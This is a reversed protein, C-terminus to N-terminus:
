SGLGFLTEFLDKFEENESILESFNAKFYTKAAKSIIKKPIDTEEHAVTIIDKYQDKLAEMKTLVINAEEIAEKLKKLDESDVQVTM